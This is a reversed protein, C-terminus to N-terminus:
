INTLLEVLFTLLTGIVILIFGVFPAILQCKQKLSFHQPSPYPEPMGITGSKFSNADGFMILALRLYWPLEKYEFNIQTRFSQEFMQKSLIYTGAIILVGCLVKLMRCGGIRYIPFDLKPSVDSIFGFKAIAFNAV